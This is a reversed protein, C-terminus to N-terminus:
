NIRVVVKGLQANSDVYAKAAPLEDFAFVKDIVPAIRGDACAPLVERVFGRWAEAREGATLHANSVGFIQLRKGHVAELDFESKLTRDLYGVIAVRGQNALARVCEPFATGGVLNVALNAGKGGAAELVQAAFGGGRAQIGADLGIAKLKALKEASGSTGIVRAGILKGLQVCAVGVGSSAGVVLLSEGAKLRGYPYLIEYATIYVVPLAAAQEWTLREPMLVAQHLPLRAYESCAGRGRGMIRDGPKFGTVGAGVAHVEGSVDSGLLRPEDASHLGIAALLEGRNLSSARMRVILEGAAPEPIPVDRLEVVTKGGEAKIWYSKM